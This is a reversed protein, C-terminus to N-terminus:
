QVEFSDGELKDSIGLVSAQKQKLSSLTAYFSISDYM